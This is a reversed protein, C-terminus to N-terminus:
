KRGKLIMKLNQVELQSILRGGADIWASTVYESQDKEDVKHNGQAVAHNYRFQSLLLKWAADQYFFSAATM